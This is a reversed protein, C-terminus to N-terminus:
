MKSSRKSSYLNHFQESFYSRLPLQQYTEQFLDKFPPFIWHVCARKDKTREKKEQRSIPWLSQFQLLRIAIMLPFDLSDWLIYDVLGDESDWNGVGLKETIHFFLSGNRKLGSNNPNEIVYLQVWAQSIHM